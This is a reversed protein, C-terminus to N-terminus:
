NTLIRPDASSNRPFYLLLWGTVQFWKETENMLGCGFGKFNRM